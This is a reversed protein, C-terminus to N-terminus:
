ESLWGSITGSTFATCNLRIFAFNAVAQAGNSTVTAIVIWSATTDNRGEINVTATGTIEVQVVSSSVPTHRASRIPKLAATAAVGALVPDFKFVM